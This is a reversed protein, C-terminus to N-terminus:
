CKAIIATFNEWPSKAMGINIWAVTGGPTSVMFRNVFLIAKLGLIGLAARLQSHGSVIGIRKSSDVAKEAELDPIMMRSIGEFYLLLAIIDPSMQLM